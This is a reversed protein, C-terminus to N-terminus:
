TVAMLSSMARGNSRMRGRCSMGGGTWGGGAVTCITHCSRVSAEGAWAQSRETMADILTSRDAEHLVASLFSMGLTGLLLATASYIRRAAHAIQDLEPGESARLGRLGLGGGGFAERIDLRVAALHVDGVGLHHQAQEVGGPVPPGLIRRAGVQDEEVGAGHALLGLLAHERAGALQGLVPLALAVGARPGDQADGAAHGLVELARDALPRGVHIEHDAGVPVATQHRVDLLRAGAAGDVVRLQVAELGVLAEIGGALHRPAHRPVDRDLAAAVLEAREADHGVRAPALAPRRRALDQALRAGHGLGAVLLDLEEALRHVRVAVLVHAEAVQQAGDGGHVADLADAEGRGVGEVERVVDDRRHRLRGLDALVHVQRQLARRVRHQRAHLAAVVERGVAAEHARQAGGHGADGDRGVEHHAEAVLGLVLEALDQARLFLQAEVRREHERVRLALARRGRALHGVRHGLVHLRAPQGLHDRQLLPDRALDERRLHSPRRAHQDLV